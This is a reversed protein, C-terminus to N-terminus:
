KAPAEIKVDPSADKTTVVADIITKNAPTLKKYEGVSLEPSWKVLREVIFKGDNGSAELKDLAEDLKTGKELDNPDVPTRDLNYNLSRVYKLKYGNGLEFNNTGIPADAGFVALVVNGRAVKEALVAAVAAAKKADWDQILAVIEPTLEKIM